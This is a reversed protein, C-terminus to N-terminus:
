RETRKLKRPSKNDVSDELSRKRTLINEDVNEKFDDDNLSAFSQQSSMLSREEEYGTEEKEEQFLYKDELLYCKKMECAKLWALSVIKINGWEKSSLYKPNNLFASPNATNCILHTTKSQDLNDLWKGGSSLIFSQLASRESSSTFGTCTFILGNFLGLQYTNLPVKTNSSRCDLIWSPHVLPINEKMGYMYESCLVSRSVICTTGKNLNPAIKGGLLLVSSVIKKYYSGDLAYSSVYIHYGFLVSKDLETAAHTKGKNAVVMPNGKEGKGSSSSKTKMQLLSADSDLHLFCSKKIKLISITRNRHHVNIKSM